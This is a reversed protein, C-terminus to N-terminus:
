RKEWGMEEMRECAKALFFSIRDWGDLVTVDITDVPRGVGKRITDYLTNMLNTSPGNYVRDGRPPSEKKPIPPEPVDQGEVRDFSEEGIDEMKDPELVAPRFSTTRAKDKKRATM